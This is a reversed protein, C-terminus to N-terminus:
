NWRFSDGSLLIVLAMLGFFLGIVGAICAPIGALVIALSSQGKQYLLYSVPLGLVLMGLLLAWASFYSGDTAYRLGDLFFLLAIILSLANIAWYIRILTM